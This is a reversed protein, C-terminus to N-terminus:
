VVKNSPCDVGKKHHREVRPLDGMSSVVTVMPMDVLVGDKNRWSLRLDLALLGGKQALEDLKNLLCREVMGDSKQSVLDESPLEIQQKVDAGAVLTEGVLSSRRTRVSQSVAVEVRQAGQEGALLGLLNRDSVQAQQNDSASQIVERGEHAGPLNREQISNGIEPDVVPQNGDGVQVVGM